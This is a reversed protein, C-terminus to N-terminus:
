YLDEKLSSLFDNVSKEMQNAAFSWVQSTYTKSTRLAKRLTPYNVQIIYLLDRIVLRLNEKPLNVLDVSKTFELYTQMFSRIESILLLIDAVDRGDLVAARYDYRSNTNFMSIQDLLNRLVPPLPRISQELIMGLTEYYLQEVKQSSM